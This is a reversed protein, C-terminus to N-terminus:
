YLFPFEAIRLTGPFSLKNFAFCVVKNGYGRKINRELCNYSINTKAGDMFRCFVDGKKVDFNWELGQTCYSFIGKSTGQEFHLEEAVSKWFADSNNISSRYKELYSPLGRVHAGALLPAPPLFVQM